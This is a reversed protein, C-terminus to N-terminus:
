PRYTRDRPVGLPPARRGADFRLATIDPSAEHLAERIGLSGALAALRLRQHWLPAGAEAYLVFAWQMAPPAVPARLAAM